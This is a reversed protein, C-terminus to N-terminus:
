HEIRPRSAPTRHVYVHGSLIPIANSRICVRQLHGALIGLAAADLEAVAPLVRFATIARVRWRRELRFVVNSWRRAVSHKLVALTPAIMTLLQRGLAAGAVVVLAVGAPGSSWLEKGLSGFLQWWFFGAMALLATAMMANATAYATLWRDRGSDTRALLANRARFPLDPQRLVDALLLAGDLGVFPLLNAAIGIANIIVFRHLIAAGPTDHPVFLFAIAAVSTVLWEAWPGAAAQILRQRRNLLLADVSEVYFAPTGLHLRLGVMRVRRGYHVTVLAHGLEHIAVAVLGLLIIAPIQAPHAHM